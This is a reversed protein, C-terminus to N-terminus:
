DIKKDKWYGERIGGNVDLVIKGVTKNDILGWKKLIESVEKKWSEKKCPKEEM